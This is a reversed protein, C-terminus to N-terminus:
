KQILVYSNDWDGINISCYFSPISGYDGDESEIYNGKRCIDYIDQLFKSVDPFDKYHEKIYFQNVQVYSDGKRAAKMLDLPGSKIVVRIVSYHEQRVSIKFEPFMKRILNRKVKVEDKSIYPM